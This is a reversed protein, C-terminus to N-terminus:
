LLTARCALRFARWRARRARMSERTVRERIGRWVEPPPVTGEVSERLTWRIMADLRSGVRVGADDRSAM